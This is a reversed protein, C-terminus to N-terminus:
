DEPKKFHARCKGIFFSFLLVVSGISIVKYLSDGLYNVLLPRYAYFFLFDVAIALIGIISIYIVKM